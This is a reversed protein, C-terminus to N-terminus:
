QVKTALVTYLNGNYSIYVTGNKVVKEAPQVVSLGDDTHTIVTNVDQVLRVAGGFYPHSNSGIVIECTSILICQACQMNGTSSWYIAQKPVEVSTQTRIGTAPLFVAGADEMQQWEELSYEKPINWKDRYNIGELSAWDDPLLIMGFLGDIWASGRLKSANARSTLLYRWEAVSLTRWAGPDDDSIRNVGWDIYESYDNYDYSWLAPNDGTGWGFLDITDALVPKGDEGTTLNAAGICKHQQEAFPWTGTSLVYQLNGQSFYVQKDKAVSFRCAGAQAARASLSLCLILYLPLLINRKM